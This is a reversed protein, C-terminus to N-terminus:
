EGACQRYGPRTRRDARSRPLGRDGAVIHHDRYLSERRISGRTRQEHTFVVRMAV